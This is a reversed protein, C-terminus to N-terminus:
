THGMFRVGCFWLVSVGEKFSYLLLGLLLLLMKNM